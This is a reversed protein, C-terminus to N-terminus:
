FVEKKAILGMEYIANQINQLSEKIKSTSLLLNNIQNLFNEQTAHKAPKQKPASPIKALSIKVKKLLEKFKKIRSDIVCLYEESSLPANKRFLLVTEYFEQALLPIDLCNYLDQLEQIIEVYELEKAFIRNWMDKLDERQPILYLGEQTKVLEKEIFYRVLGEKYPIYM